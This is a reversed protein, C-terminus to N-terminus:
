GLTGRVVDVEIVDKIIKVRLIAGFIWGCHWNCFCGDLVVAYEAIEEVGVVVRFM